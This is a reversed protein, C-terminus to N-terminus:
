SLMVDHLSPYLYMVDHLSPYLYMVDHLSPYLYMVDHLSPYLYMLEVDRLAREVDYVHHLSTSRQYHECNILWILLAEFIPHSHCSQGQWVALHMYM